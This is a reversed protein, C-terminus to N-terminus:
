LISVQVRVVATCYVLFLKYPCEKVAAIKAALPLALSFAHSFRLYFGLEMQGVDVAIPSKIRFLELLQQFGESHFHIWSIHLNQDTSKVQIIVPIDIQM